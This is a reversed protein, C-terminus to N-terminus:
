RTRSKTVGQRARAGLGLVIFSGGVGAFLPDVSAPLVAAAVAVLVPGAIMAALAHGPAIRGPFFVATCLPAFAVAGRLGMSMYSWNLIMAGMNGAVSLLAGALVMGIVLRSILLVRADNAEPNIYIKYIDNVLMQSLGLAIGAGTGVVTVLLTALIMGGLLPPTKELIFRPLATAPTIDPYHLRMYMGIVIGAVGILPVLFACVYAGRLATRLSQAALVAQIYAQTTLVGFILSLGAGVDVWAGRAVLSFYRGPDLSTCFSGMGGQLHLALAGCGGVGVCILVTKAIGVMGAGWVGGFVVYALMLVVTVVGAFIPNADCAATILAVGSLVQSAITLFNGLATLLASATSAKRGYERAFFHPLTTTGSTYLPKLFFLGLTLCGLGAGLTFWWASFGYSFALQSTGITSAGGVLSGIISGAVLGAGAKREGGSFSIASHVRKGSWVGLFTILLLIAAAGYYHTATM